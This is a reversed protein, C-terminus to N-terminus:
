PNRRVKEVESGIEADVLLDKMESTGRLSLVLENLIVLDLPLSMPPLFRRTKSLVFVWPILLSCFAGSGEGL